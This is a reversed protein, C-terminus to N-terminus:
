LQNIMLQKLKEATCKLDERLFSCDAELRKNIIPLSDLQAVLKTQYKETTILKDKIIDLECTTSSLVSTTQTLKDELLGREQNVNSLTSHLSNIEQDKTYICSDRQAIIDHLQDINAELTKIKYELIDLDSRFVKDCNQSEIVLTAAESMSNSLQDILLQQESITKNKAVLKDSFTNKITKIEAQLSTSENNLNIVELRLSDIISESNELKFEYESIVSETSNSKSEFEIYQM